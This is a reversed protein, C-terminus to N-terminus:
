EVVKDGLGRHEGRSKKNERSGVGKIQRVSRRIM